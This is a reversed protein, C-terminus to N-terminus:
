AFEGIATRLEALRAASVEIRQIEAAASDAQGLRRERAFVMADRTAGISNLLTEDLLGGFRRFADEVNQLAAWRLNEVNRQVITDIEELLRKRLREKQLSRPLFGDFAGPRIPLLRIAQGSQVWYPENRLEFAETSAPARFPVDMLDAATRRVLNLLEDARKSHADLIFAVREQMESEFRALETQFFSPVLAAVANRAATADGGNDTARDLETALISRARARLQEADREIQDLIRKKDGEILDRAIRREAEFGETAKVFTEIRCELDEMPLRLARLEIEMEIILEDVSAISKKVIAAALTRKKDRAAFDALYNELAPLGSAELAAADGSMRARLASRASLCFLPVSEDVAAHEALTRRLFAIAAGLDQPEVVDVKNLVIVLHAVAARVRSLYEIEVETIPPDPSVVFLAADCEPLAAEATRTNHRFTSGIGPTDILVVGQTLLPAPLHVEVRSLGLINKPNSDETVLRALERALATPGDAEIDATKGSLFIARVHFGPDNEVFTTIATLPTVATPLILDGLIANLLTSKGRKFQGVVALQLRDNRLRLHLEDVRRLIRAQSPTPDTVSQNIEALLKALTSYDKNTADVALSWLM